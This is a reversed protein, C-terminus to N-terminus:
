NFKQKKKLENIFIEEGAKDPAYEKGLVAFVTMFM